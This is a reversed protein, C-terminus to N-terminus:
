FKVVLLYEVNFNTKGLATHGDLVPTSSRAENRGLAEWIVQLSTKQFTVAAQPCFFRMGWFLLSARPVLRSRKWVMFSRAGGGGSGRFCSATFIKTRESFLPTKYSDEGNERFSLGILFILPFFPIDASLISIFYAKTKLKYPRKSFEGEKM